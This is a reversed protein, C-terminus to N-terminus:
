KQASSSAEPQGDDENLLLQSMQQLAANTAQGHQLMPTYKKRSRLKDNLEHLQNKLSTIDNEAQGIRILESQDSTIRQHRAEQKRQKRELKIKAMEHLVEQTFLDKMLAKHEKTDQKGSEELALIERAISRLDDNIARTEDSFADQRAQKAEYEKTDSRLKEELAIRADKFQLRADRLSLNMAQAADEVEELPANNRKMLRALKELGAKLQGTVAQHPSPVSSEAPELDEQLSELAPELAEQAAQDEQAPQPTAARTNSATVFVDDDDSQTSANDATANRAFADRPLESELDFIPRQLVNLINNLIDHHASPHSDRLSEASEIIEAKKDEAINDSQQVITRFLPHPVGKKLLGILNEIPLNLKERHHRLDAAVADWEQRSRKRDSAAMENLKQEASPKDGRENKPAGHQALNVEHGKSTSGQIASLM